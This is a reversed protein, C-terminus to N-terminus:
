QINSCDAHWLINLTFGRPLAVEAEVLATTCGAADLLDGLTNWLAMELHLGGFMMVYKEEGHSEPWKRQVMKALAFLPQDLVIVPIQAPNLFTIAQKLVDMGHKIMAPTAAKEYFVPLLASLAPPSKEIQQKSSHYAAWVISDESTLDEENLKQLAHEAWGKEELKCAEIMGTVDRMERQPVSTATTKLETPPVIAYSDPISHKDSHSSPM